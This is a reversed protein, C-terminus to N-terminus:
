GREQGFTGEPTAGDLPEDMPEPPQSDDTRAAHSRQRGDVTRLGLLLAACLVLVLPVRM